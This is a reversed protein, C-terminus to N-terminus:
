NKEAVTVFKANLAFSTDSKRTKLNMSINTKVLKVHDTASQVLNMCLINIKASKVLGMVYPVSKVITMTNSKANEINLVLHVSKQITFILKGHWEVWKKANQM